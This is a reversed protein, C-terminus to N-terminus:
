NSYKIDVSEGCNGCEEEVTSGWSAGVETIEAGSPITFPVMYGCEPCAVNKLAM